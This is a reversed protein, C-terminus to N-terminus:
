DKIRKNIELIARFMFFIRTKIKRLFSRHPNSVNNDHIRRSLTIEEIHMNSKLLNATLAIWIDHSEVYQPIPLIFERLEKRFAMACGYYARKGMLIGIINKLYKTSGNKKLPHDMNKYTYQNFLSFNSSILLVDSIMFYSKFKDVRGPEWIDDQDSLFILDNKAKEIAKSFTYVHKKNKGNKYLQIREDKFGLIINVTNDTSCDDVIIVEDDRDIQSLISKLQEDIYKEGNYTAMCVSINM